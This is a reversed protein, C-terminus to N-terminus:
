GIIKKRIYKGTGWIILGYRLISQVIAFYAIMATYKTAVM